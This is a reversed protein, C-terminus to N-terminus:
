TAEKMSGDKFGFYLPNRPHLAKWLKGIRKAERTVVGKADLVWWSGDNDWILYDPRYTIKPIDPNDETPGQILFRPGYSWRKIRLTAVMSDLRDAWERETKSDYLV